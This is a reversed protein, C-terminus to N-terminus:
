LNWFYRVVITYETWIENWYYYNDWAFVFLMFKLSSNASANQNNFEWRPRSIAIVTHVQGFPVRTVPNPTSNCIGVSSWAERCMTIESLPILTSTTYILGPFPTPQEISTHDWKLARNQDLLSKVNINKQKNM